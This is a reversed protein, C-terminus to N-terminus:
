IRNLLKMIENSLPHKMLIWRLKSIYCYVTCYKSFCYMESSIIRVLSKSKQPRKGLKVIIKISWQANFISQKDWSSSPRTNKWAHFFANSLSFKAYQGKYARAARYWLHCNVLNSYIRFVYRSVNKAIRARQSLSWNSILFEHWAGWFYFSIQKIGDYHHVFEPLDFLLLLVTYISYM